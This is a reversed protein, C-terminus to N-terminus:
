SASGANFSAITQMFRQGYLDLKHQGVGNVALFQANTVPKIRAMDRLTKDSFVIYPPKGIEQAITRRLERLKQFLSEEDDDPIYSGLADGPVNASDATDAVGGSRGSGAAASKREVRKIEYHFDPAATEAARAGFMVIPMRGEAISLYGDTAMQSLVDRVRAENVDKLMGFTPMREPNLWALDQARSGRLIKVIKGSGVRQGVDHVCRSIAQAVRTVDITEFTSECNSCAGCRGSQSSDAAIDEGAASGANPSLEQGFYRTMYRHLCDTTRCYGVMGDLLRRKSQRVIEQEEPTLRENEYDNDLLRRRTVIDSENWLLTCRSPEGDRGARGAEQYYAEISEPLNHHIVYRVNSKDIGMGFANTAVVVPVKDTIFDRQAVERADPSMGGHYAVAPHGVPHGMQNLTDALAETTKRTACYVIGSEDPHDAVYRAVWAAKYKTELKVVDFYLNPRDFGTVTVAPNRLGLLGVIDRRVRETATATFAGVPPRQPLGAIFDGIGLYSSRFDQGWQSVCHAEDVAILSIPTRAAFDRFRGTELREPAVYLLKIQGAAAQAFVMAQEDPTQTTNIFAAPLGLDNLADVQDRMLSILPSVVLTVGPSLAAPIQYCVSKGAGTPMVGLVDHGALLAEVIGQQGPRFSDYGFYRTLAELAAQHATM